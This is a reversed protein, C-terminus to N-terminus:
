FRVATAFFGNGGASSCAPDACGDLSVKARLQGINSAGPFLDTLFQALHGHAPLSLINQTLVSGTNPDWLSALVYAKVTDPNAIAIGTNLTPSTEAALDTAAMPEPLPKIGIESLLTSHSRFQLIVTTLAGSPTYSIQMWGSTVPGTLTLHIERNQGPDLKVDLTSLPGQGDFLFGLPSGSDGFLSIHGTTSVSNNNIIQLITVYNTGAPDGGAVVHPFAVPVSVFTTQALALDSWLFLLIVGLKKM